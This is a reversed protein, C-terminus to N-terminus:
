RLVHTTHCWPLPYPTPDLPPYSSRSGLRRSSFPLLPLSPPLFGDPQYDLSSASPFRSSASKIPQWRGPAGRSPIRPSLRTEQIFLSSGRIDMLRWCQHCRSNAPHGLITTRMSLIPTSLQPSSWSRPLLLPRCVQLSASKCVQLSASECALSGNVLSAVPSSMSLHTSYTSSPHIPLYPHIPFSGQM